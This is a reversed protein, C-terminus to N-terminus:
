FATLQILHHVFLSCSFLYMSARILRHPCADPSLPKKKICHFLGFRGGELQPTRNLNNSTVKGPAQRKGYIPSRPLSFALTKRVSPNMTKGSLACFFPALFIRSWKKTLRLWGLDFRKCFQKVIFVIIQIIIIGFVCTGITETLSQLHHKHFGKKLSQHYKRPIIDLM